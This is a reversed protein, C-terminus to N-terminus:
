DAGGAPEPAPEFPPWRADVALAEKLMERYRARSIEVVGFQELHPNTFQVDLLILGRRRMHRVLHVLCVKSADTGGAEPRSFMSEGAFLGGIHVGYLGGVLRRGGGREPLWAEISHARDARHLATYWALLTDDIWTDGCGPRPQACARMVDDFATDTTIEFRRAAVRRRLNSSVHFADLPIIARPDPRYWSVGGTEPDGMPFCGESYAQTLAEVIHREDPTTPDDCM